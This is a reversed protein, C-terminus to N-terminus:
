FFIEFTPKPALANPRLFKTTNEVAPTLVQVTGSSNFLPRFALTVTIPAPPEPPRLLPPPPPPPPPFATLNTSRVPMSDTGIVTPAPPALGAAPEVDIGPFLPPLEEKPVKQEAVPPLPPPLTDPPDDPIPTLPSIFVLVPGPVGPENWLEPDYTLPDPPPAPPGPDKLLELLSPESAM